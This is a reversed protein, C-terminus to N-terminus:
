VQDNWIGVGVRAWHVLDRSVVHGFVPGAHPPIGLHDQYFLDAPLTENPCVTAFSAPGLFFDTQSVTSVTTSTTALVM